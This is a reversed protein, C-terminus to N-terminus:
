PHQTGYHITIETGVPIDASAYLDFNEFASNADTSHNLYRLLNCGRRGEPPTRDDPDYLWLVYPGNRRAPPGWYTGIYTEAPIRVRAFLGRGHIRSAAVYVLEQLDCDRIRLGSGTV